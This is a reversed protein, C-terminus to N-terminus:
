RCVFCLQGDILPGSYTIDQDDESHEDMLENCLGDAETNEGRPVWIYDVNGEEKLRVQLAYAKEVLDQNAVPCGMSNTWGNRSWKEIWKTMCGIVYKSDTHIEVDLWPDNDLSEYKKWAQELALIVALLEARQNTVPRWSDAQMFSQVTERKGYRGIFIAAAAGIADMRGNGRCGGDIWVEIKYVM